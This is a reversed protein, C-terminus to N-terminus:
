VMIEFSWKQAIKWLYFMGEVQEPSKFGHPWCAEFTYMLEQALKVLYDITYIPGMICYIGLGVQISLQMMIDLAQM